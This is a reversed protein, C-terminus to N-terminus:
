ALKDYSTSCTNKKDGVAEVGLIRGGTEQLWTGAMGGNFMYGGKNKHDEKGGRADTRLISLYLM